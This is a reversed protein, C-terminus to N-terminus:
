AARRRQSKWEPDPDPMVLNLKTAAWVQLQEIMHDTFETTDMDATSARIQLRPDCDEKLGVIERMLADHVAPFEWDPHGMEKAIMPLAMGRYWGHQKRTAKRRKRQIVLEVERNRFTAAIYAKLGGAADLHLKGAADVTGYWTPAKM